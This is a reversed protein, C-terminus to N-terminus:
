SDDKARSALACVAEHTSYLAWSWGMCMAEMVPYVVTSPSVAVHAQLESNWTSDIQIGHARLDSVTIPDNFAFYDALDRNLFNYFCDAVDGENGHIDFAAVQGCGHAGQQVSHAHAMDVFM